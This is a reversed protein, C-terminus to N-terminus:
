IFLGRCWVLLIDNLGVSGLWLGVIERHWGFLLTGKGPGVVEEV